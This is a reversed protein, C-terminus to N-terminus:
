HLVPVRHVDVHAASRMVVFWVGSALGVSSLEVRDPVGPAQAHLHVRGNADLVEILLLQQQHISHEVFIREDAAWVRVDRSTRDPMGTSIDIVVELSFSSSCAGEEVTLTVTYTGPAGYTHTPAEETSAGGDGFDWNYSGGSSTNLFEIPTNVFLETTLVSFEVTPTQGVSITSSASGTCGNTTVTYDLTQTGVSPDFTNGVM